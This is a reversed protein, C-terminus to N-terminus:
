RNPLNIMDGPISREVSQHIDYSFIKEPHVLRVIKVARVKTLPCLAVDGFGNTGKQSSWYVMGLQGSKRFWGLFVVSHGGGTKWSINMFDGPRALEPAIEKGMGSYQLMAYNSGWGDDNWKGWFKIRDERRSNDPEQMRMAEMREPTLIKEGGPLLINIAEIFVGYTSGSCYSTSRPPDLLPTGFLSLQYGIPSEPSAAKLGIFYGGGDMAHSQVIDIAKLVARNAGQVYKGYQVEHNLHHVQPAVDASDLFLWQASDDKTAQTDNDAACVISISLLLAGLVIRNRM